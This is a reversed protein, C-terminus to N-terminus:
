TEHAWWGVSERFLLCSRLQEYLCSLGQNLFITEPLNVPTQPPIPDEPLM